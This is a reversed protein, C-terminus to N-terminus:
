NEFISLINNNLSMTKKLKFKNKFLSLDKSRLITEGNNGIFFNSQFLLLEDCLKELIFSSFIRSGGEVLLNAVGLNALKELIKKLNYDREKLIFITIGKKTLSDVKEPNNEKTFFITKNKKCDKFIKLNEKIDLKSTLIVRMPSLHSLGKIRCNLKPNDIKLTNAGILIADYKSRILHVVKNSLKNTIASRTRPITSIKGDLSSAIKLTIKPRKLKRNLIYGQYTRSIKDNLIGSLVDVGNKTLIKEGLGNVRQDPDKISYVVRHIPKKSIENVCSNERGKHCCPELTSYLTYNKNSRFKLNRIAIKEAHPRGGKETIGFSRIENNNYEKDSEVILSVVTPNPFSTSLSRKLISYAIKMYFQDNIV